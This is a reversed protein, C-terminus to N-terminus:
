WNSKATKAAERKATKAAERKTKAEELKAIMDEWELKDMMAPFNEALKKMREILAKVHAAEGAGILYAADLPVKWKSQVVSYEDHLCNDNAQDILELLRTEDDRDLKKHEYMYTNLMPLGESLAAMCQPVSFSMVWKHFDGEAWKPKGVANGKNTFEVPLEEGTEKKVNFYLGESNIPNETNVDLEATMSDTLTFITAPAKLDDAKRLKLVNTEEDLVVHCVMTTTDDSLIDVLFNNQIIFEEGKKPLSNTSCESGNKNCFQWEPYMKTPNKETLLLTEGTCSALDMTSSVTLYYTTMQIEWHEIIEDHTAKLIPTNNYGYSKPDCKRMDKLFGGIATMLHESKNINTEKEFMIEINDILSHQIATVCQKMEQLNETYLPNVVCTDVWNYLTERKRMHNREKTYDQQLSRTLEGCLGGTVKHTIWNPLGSFGAKFNDMFGDQNKWILSFFMSKMVEVLDPKKDEDHSKRLMPLLENSIQKSLAAIISSTSKNENPRISSPNRAEHAFTSGILILSLILIAKM